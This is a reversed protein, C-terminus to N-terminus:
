GRGTTVIDRKHPNVPRRPSSLGRFLERQGQNEMQRQEEKEVLVSTGGVPSGETGETKTHGRTM